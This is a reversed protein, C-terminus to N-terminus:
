ATDYQLSKLKSPEIRQSLNLIEIGVFKGEKSFDIIIGPAVKESEFVETEDLRFYLADNKEDLKIKM